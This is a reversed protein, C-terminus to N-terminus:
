AAGRQGPGELPLFVVSVFEPHFGSGRKTAPKVIVAKVVSALEARRQDMTLRRWRGRVGSHSALAEFTRRELAEQRQLSALRRQLPPMFDSFVEDGVEGAAYQGGLHRIRRQVERIEDGVRQLRPRHEVPSHRRTLRDMEALALETVHDDVHLRSRVLRGCGGRTRDCRYVPRRHQAGASMPAGCGGCVVLGSLLSKRPPGIEARSARREALTARVAEWTRRDLIPDWAAKGVPKGQMSTLGAVRPSSVIGGLDTPKWRKAGSTPRIGRADLDAAIGRLSEGRLVRRAVERIVRAEEPRVTMFDAEYGFPRKGGGTPLGKARRAELARTVRERTTEAEWQAIVAMIGAIMRGNASDLNMRGDATVVRLDHEGIFEALRQWDAVKRALRDQKTALLVDARVARSHLDALMREFEPRPSKRTASVDNDVYVGVVRAGMRDAMARCDAEQRQVGSRQEEPDRSIRAYIVARQM